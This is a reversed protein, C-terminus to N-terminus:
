REKSATELPTDEIIEVTAGEPAYPLHTLALVSSSTITDDKIVIHDPANWIPALSRSSITMTATDVFTAKNLQRISKRPIRYVGELVKGPIAGAVPQGIRLPPLGTSRGFPDDIRAIAFLDLSAPDLAGETRIIRAQWTSANESNLADTLEVDVPADEPGEPLKLKAMDRASIPLRVEAFDIAFITGLPTGAGIAQSVGVSRLRVRGNFPARIETLTVDRQARELQASASDVRAKAERLQPLRLVLENPEDEYGLDAWNLKAQKARAQEQAYAAEAQALQAQAGKLSATYVAPDITVLVDDKAFYAGDEFAASITTVQGGVQATLTVENHPRIVGQTYITTQYDERELPIVKTRLPRPKGPPRKAKAAEVSLMTFGKWGIAIVILPLLIRLLLRLKSAAGGTPAPTTEIM